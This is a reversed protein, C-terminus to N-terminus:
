DCDSTAMAIRTMVTNVDETDSQIFQTDAHQSNIQVAVGGIPEPIPNGADDYSDEDWLISLPGVALIEDTNVWIDGVLIFTATETVIVVMDDDVEPFDTDNDDAVTRSIRQNAM